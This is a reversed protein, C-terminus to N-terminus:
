EDFRVHQIFTNAGYSGEDLAYDEFIHNKQWLAKAQKNLNFLADVSDTKANIFMDLWEQNELLNGVFTLHNDGAIDLSYCQGWMVIVRKWDALDALKAVRAKIESALTDTHNGPETALAFVFVPIPMQSSDRVYFSVDFDSHTSAFGVVEVDWGMAKAFNLYQEPYVQRQSSKRDSQAEIERAAEEMEGTLPDIIVRLQQSLTTRLGDCRRSISELKTISMNREFEAFFESTFQRKALIVASQRRKIEGLTNESLARVNATTLVTFVGDASQHSIANALEEWSQFGCIGAMLEATELPTIELVAWSQNIWQFAATHSLPILKM